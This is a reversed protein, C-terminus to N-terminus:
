FYARAVMVLEQVNWWGLFFVKGILLWEENGLLSRSRSIHIRNMRGSSNGIPLSFPSTGPWRHLCEPIFSKQNFISNQWIYSTWCCVQGRRVLHCYCCAEEGLVVLWTDGSMALHGRPAFDGAMSFWHYIIKPPSWSRIWCGPISDQPGIDQLQHASPTAQSVGSDSYQTPDLSSLQETMDSETRGWPSYGALSRQGHPEGPLFVPTPPWERRWPIKGVWFWVRMEQMTPLNKVRQAVLSGVGVGVGVGVFLYQLQFQSKIQM